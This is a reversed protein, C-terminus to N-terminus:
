DLIKLGTTFRKFLRKEIKVIEADTLTDAFYLRTLAKREEEFREAREHQLGQEKLQEQVTPAFASMNITVQKKMKEAM